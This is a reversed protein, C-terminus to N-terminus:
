RLRNQLMCCCRSVSPLPNHSRLARTRTGDTVRAYGAYTLRFLLIPVRGPTRTPRKRYVVAFNAARIAEGASLRELWDLFTLYARSFACQGLAKCLTVGILCWSLRHVISFPARLVSGGGITRTRMLLQRRGCRGAHPCPSLVTPPGGFSLRLRGHFRRFAWAHSSASPSRELGGTGRCRRTSSVAWSYYRRFGGEGADHRDLM